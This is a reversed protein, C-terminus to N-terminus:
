ILLYTGANGSAVRLGEEQEISLSLVWASPLAISELKFGSYGNWVFLKGDQSASVLRNCPLLWWACWSSLDTTNNYREANRFTDVCIVKGFHGVLNKKIVLSINSKKGDGSANSKEKVQKINGNAKETKLARISKKLTSLQNKAAELKEELSRSSSVVGSSKDM